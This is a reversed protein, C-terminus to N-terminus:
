ETEPVTPPCYPRLVRNATKASVPMEKEREVVEPDLVEDRDPNVLLLV